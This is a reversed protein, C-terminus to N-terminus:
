CNKRPLFVNKYNKYCPVKSIRIFLVGKGNLENKLLGYIENNMKDFHIPAHLEPAGDRPFSILLYYIKMLARQRTISVLLWGPLCSNQFTKFGDM